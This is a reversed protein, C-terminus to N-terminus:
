REDVTESDRSDLDPICDDSDTNESDSTSDEGHLKTDEPDQDDDETESNFNLLEPMPVEAQDEPKGPFTTEDFRVQRELRVEVIDIDM